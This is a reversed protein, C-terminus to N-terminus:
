TAETLHKLNWGGLFTTQNLIPLTAPRFGVVGEFPPVPHLATRNACRNQSCPAAPEFGAVGVTLPDHNM